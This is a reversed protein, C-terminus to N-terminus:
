NGSETLGNRFWLEKYSPDSERTFMYNRAEVHGDFFSANVYQNHRLINQSLTNDWTPGRTASLNSLNIMEMTNTGAGGDVRMFFKSPYKIFNSKYHKTLNCSTTSYDGSCYNTAYSLERTGTKIDRDGPCVVLKLSGGATISKGQIKLTNVWRGFSLCRIAPIYDENEDIYFAQALGIQKLNNACSALRSSGRANNLAPLLMGALIAIIAIVVLLEILTFYVKVSGNREKQKGFTKM